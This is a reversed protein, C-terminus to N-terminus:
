LRRALKSALKYSAFLNKGPVKKDNYCVDTLDPLRCYFEHNFFLKLSTLIRLILLNMLSNNGALRGSVVIFASDIQWLDLFLYTFSSFWVQGIHMCFSHPQLSFWPSFSIFFDFSSQHSLPLFTRNRYIYNSTDYM